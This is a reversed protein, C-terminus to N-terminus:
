YKTWKLKPIKIKPTETIEADAIVNQGRKVTKLSAGPSPSSVGQKHSMIEVWRNPNGVLDRPVNVKALEELM